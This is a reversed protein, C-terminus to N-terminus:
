PELGHWECILVTADDHLSGRHHDVIAQMLRRLTEPAPMGDAQQRIIFDTFRDRGFENGQADRAETVGDTYLLVRDGRELHAHCMQVPLGLDSGMPHSPPCDLVHVWRGGRILVPPPHGRNVWALRGTGLDLDALVGTTYRQHAFQEILVQEIAETTAALGVNHRRHNRCAAVALHSTLGAATDHGMADFVALHLVDGALAYDFADGGVRYAPEVEACVVVQGNAFARPPMLAWQMEAAINMRESRVLRAHSDSSHRKSVLQLGVVSALSAAVDRDGDDAVDVRLVGLRQTGDLIPVWLRQRGPAAGSANIIQTRRFARGPLTTEVSLEEGGQGADLGRGTLERLAQQRLDSVYIRADELGAEAAHESVLAPLQEISALHGARLLEGLMRLADEPRAM